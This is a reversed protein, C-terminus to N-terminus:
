KWKWVDFGHIGRGFISLICDKPYPDACGEFKLRGNLALVYAHEHVFNRFWNSGISAPTLFAIEAGRVSEHYCAKAWPEINSFPPNLWLLGGLKHWPQKLSDDAETYFLKAKANSREAALDFVIKGFRGEVARIFDPPTGYNQKSGKRNITPGTRLANM